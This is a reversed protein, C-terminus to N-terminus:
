HRKIRKKVEIVGLNFLERKFFYMYTFIIGSYVIIGILVQVLLSGWGNSLYHSSAKVVAYMAVGIVAYPLCQLLIWKFSAFKRVLFIEIVLGTVEAM